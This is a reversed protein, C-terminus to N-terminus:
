RGCQVVVFDWRRRFMVVACQVTSNQCALAPLVPLRGVAVLVVQFRFRVSRNPAPNPMFALRHYQVRTM